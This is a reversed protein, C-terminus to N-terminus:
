AQSRTAIASRFVRSADIEPWNKPLQVHFTSGVGPTSEATLEGGLLSAFHRSVALGLGAGDFNRTTSGDLQEFPRFLREMAEPAIGIGTDSVSFLFGPNAGANNRQLSLRITGDKTFKCANSLLNRLLAQLKDVDTVICGIDDPCRLRLTNGRAQAHPAFSRVLDEVFPLIEVEEPAAAVTGSAIQSQDLLNRILEHLNTAAQQIRGIDSALEVPDNDEAEELLLESYGLIQHLPTRLEHSMTALFAEKVRYAEVLRDEVHKRSTAERRLMSNMVSLEQKVRNLEIRTPGIVTGTGASTKRRARESTQFASVVVEALASGGFLSVLAVMFIANVVEGGLWAGLCLSIATVVVVTYTLHRPMVLAATLQVATALLLAPVLLGGLSASMLLGSAVLLCALVLGRPHGRNSLLCALTLTVAAACSGAFPVLPSDGLFQLCSAVVAAATVWAQSRSSVEM